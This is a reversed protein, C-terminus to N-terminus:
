LKKKLKYGIVDCFKGFDYARNIVHRDNCFSYDIKLVSDILGQLTDITDDEHINEVYYGWVYKVLVNAYKLNSHHFFIRVKDNNYDFKNIWDYTEDHSCPHIIVTDVTDNILDDLNQCLNMIMIVKTGIPTCKSPYITKSYNYYKVIDNVIKYYKKHEM